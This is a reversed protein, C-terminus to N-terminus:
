KVSHGGFGIQEQLASLDSCTSSDDNEQTGGSEEPDDSNDNSGPVSVVANQGQWDCGKKKGVVNGGLGRDTGEDWAKGITVRNRALVYEIEESTDKLNWSIERGGICTGGDNPLASKPPDHSMMVRNSQTWTFQIFFMVSLDVLDDGYPDSVKQGVIRLGILFISQLFVVLGAVVDVVWHADAGTGANIGQTIAFLPLYLATLLCIFHVYFFPIPLDAANYLQGAQARLQLIQDRLMAALERDILGEDKADQVELMAWVILERYASGGADMDIADMREMEERTLLQFDNLCVRDFYCHTPYVSSLGVYAAAHAANTYRIMRM